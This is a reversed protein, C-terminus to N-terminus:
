GQSAKSAKAKAKAMDLAADAVDRCAKQADGAMAECKATAIKHKGEALTVATDAAADTMKADAKQTAEGLDKSAASNVDAQAENAKADKEAAATSATAVDHKVDVPSQASNCAALALLSLATFPVSIRM